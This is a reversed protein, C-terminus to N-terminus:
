RTSDARQRSLEFVSLAYGDRRFTRPPGLSYARALDERARADDGNPLALYHAVNPLPRENLLHRPEMMRPLVIGSSALTRRRSASDLGEVLIWGTSDPVVIVTSDDPALTHLADDVLTHFATFELSYALQDQGAGCCEGTVRTMRLMDHSGFAFTGYLRRSVPDVTRVTSIGLLVAYAGLLARRVFTPLALRFLSAFFPISLLAMVTIFYRTHGFTTFRTLAYGAAVTLVTLFGLARRDAVAVARRPERHAGRVMGIFGDAVLVGTVIWAFNLVLLLVAYNVQYLDLRPVLFQRVPSENTTGGYWIVAENPLTSRYLLYALFAIGPLTAPALRVTRAIREGATGPARLTYWLVYCALLVAYLLVGTEKTFALALGSLIVVLWRRELIGVIAWLLAPLLPLDLGPQVVAALFSPQLAFTATLLARDLADAGPFVLRTLRHFAIGAALFLTANFALLPV